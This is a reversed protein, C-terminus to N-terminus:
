IEEIKPAEEDPESKKERIKEVAEKLADPLAGSKEALRQMRAEPDEPGPDKGTELTQQIRPLDDDICSFYNSCMRHLQEQTVTGDMLWLDAFVTIDGDNRDWAFKALRRQANISALAELVAPRHPHDPPCKAYGITLFQLFRGEDQLSVVVQYRGFEGQLSLLVAPRNPDLYYRLKEEDLLKRLQEMTIAM